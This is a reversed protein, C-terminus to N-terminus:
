ISNSLRALGGIFAKSKNRMNIVRKGPQIGHEAFDSLSISWYSPSREIDRTPRDGEQIKDALHGTEQLLSSVWVSFSGALM